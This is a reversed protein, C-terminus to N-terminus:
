CPLLYLCVVVFTCLNKRIVQVACCVGAPELSQQLLLSVHHLSFFHTSRTTLYIFYITLLCEKGMMNLSTCTEYVLLICYASHLSQM